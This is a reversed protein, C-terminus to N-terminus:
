MFVFVIRMVVLSKVRSAVLLLTYSLFLGLIYGWSILADTRAAGGVLLWSIRCPVHLAHIRLLEYHNGVTWM